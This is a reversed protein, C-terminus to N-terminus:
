WMNKKSRPCRTASYPWLNGFSNFYINVGVGAFWYLDYKRSDGRQFGFGPYNKDWKPLEDQRYSLNVSQSGVYKYLTDMSVYTQSVDDIYDTTTFRVGFETTLMVKKGVFFKFGGGLPVAFNVLNYMRRGSYPPLGQGETRLPRLFVKEDALGTTYPNFYFLAASAFIYPSVKRYTVDVPLLNLELGGSVEFLNTSFNLNRQQRIKSVALSDAATLQTYNVGFRMGVRPNLFYKYNLGAVPSNGNRSFFENQLDGYYAATGAFIGMEHHREQAMALMPMLCM